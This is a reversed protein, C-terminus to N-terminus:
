PEQFTAPTGSAPAGGSSNLYVIEGQVRVEGEKVDVYNGGEKITTPGEFIFQRAKFYLEGDVELVYRGDIRELRNGSVRTHQDHKVRVNLDREATLDFRERGAADEFTLKNGHDPPAQPTSHSVLGSQTPSRALDLPVDQLRHFVSGVVVPHDPDGEDFAVLVEQGVRPAFWAGFREGAWAQAVRAPVVVDRNEDRQWFFRLYVRGQEDLVVEPGAAAQDTGDAAVVVASVVGPIYPKPTRRPPRYRASAPIAVFHNEYNAAEGQGERRAHHEVRLVVFETAPDDAPAAGGFASAFRFRGGPELDPLDSAGYSTEAPAAEEDQRLQLQRQGQTDDAYRAVDYRERAAAQDDGSAVHLNDAPTPWSWANLAHRTATLRQQSRWAHIGPTWAGDPAPLPRWECELPEADTGPADTLVVKEGDDDQLFAVCLGQEEFLRRLFDLTTERYQVCIPYKSTSQDTLQNKGTPINAALCVRAAVEVASVDGYVRCDSALALLKLRPEVLAHVAGTGADRRVQTVVGHWRRDGVGFATQRGLLAAKVAPWPAPQAELRPAFELDFHYLEALAEAGTFGVLELGLEEAPTDHHIHM